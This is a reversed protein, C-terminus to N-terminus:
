IREDSISFSPHSRFFLKIVSHIGFWCVRLDKGSALISHSPVLPAPSVAARCLTSNRSKLITDDDLVSSPFLFVPNEVLFFFFVGSANGVLM